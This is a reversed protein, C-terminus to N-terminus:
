PLPRYSRNIQQRVFQYFPRAQRKTRRGIAM